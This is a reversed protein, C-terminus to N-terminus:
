RLWSFNNLSWPPFTPMATMSAHDPSPLWRLVIIWGSSQTWRGIVLMCCPVYTCMAVLYSRMLTRSFLNLCSWELFTCLLSFTSGCSFRRQLIILSYRSSLCLTSARAPVNCALVQLVIACVTTPLTVTGSFFFCQILTILDHSAFVLVPIVKAVM